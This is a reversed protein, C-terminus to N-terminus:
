NTEYIFAVRINISKSPEIVVDLQAATRAIELGNEYVTFGQYQMMTTKILKM